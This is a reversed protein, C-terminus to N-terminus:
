QPSIRAALERLPESIHPGQEGAVRELESAITAVAADNIAGSKRLAQVITALAFQFEQPM